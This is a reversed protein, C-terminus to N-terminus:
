RRCGLEQQAIKSTGCYTSGVGLWITMASKVSHCNM